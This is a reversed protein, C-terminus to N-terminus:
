TPAVGAAAAKCDVGIRPDNCFDPWVGRRRWYDLLGLRAALTWFRPDRRLPAAAPEFLTNLVWDRRRSPTNLRVYAPDDLVAFAEDLRGFTAAALM